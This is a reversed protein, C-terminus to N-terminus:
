ALQQIQNGVLGHVGQTSQDVGRDSVCSQRAPKQSALPRCKPLRAAHRCLMNACQSCGLPRGYWACGTAQHMVAIGQLRSGIRTQGWEHASELVVYHARHEQASLHTEVDAEFRCSRVNVLKSIRSTQWHGYLAAILCRHPLQICPSLSSPVSFRGRSSYNRMLHKLCRVWCRGCQANAM